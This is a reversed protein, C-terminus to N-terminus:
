TRIIPYKLRSSILEDEQVHLLLESFAKSLVKILLRLSVNQLLM